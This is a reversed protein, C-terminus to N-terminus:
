PCKPASSDLNFAAIRIANDAVPEGNAAIVPLRQGTGADYLGVTVSYDQSRSLVSLDIPHIDQVRDGPQWQWFPMLGLLPPSDHQAALSGDPNLMHVFIHLDGPVSQSANWNLTVNLLNGCVSWKPDELALSGGFTAVVHTAAIKGPPNSSKLLGGVEILEISRPAYDAIYVHDAARIKPMLQDWNLPQGGSMGYYYPQPVALNTFKAAAVNLSRGTNAWVFESLTSYGPLFLAGEHGVPYWLQMPSIWAPLNVFLLQDNPNSQEAVQLVSELPAANLRHLDMRQRIFIFAPVLVMGAIAFVAAIRVRRLSRGDWIIEAAGAWLWAAGVSALYLVRPADILYNHSLFMMPPLLCIGYWGVGMIWRRMQGARIFIAALLSLGIAAVILVAIQDNVGWAMMVRGLPQLPFTLGQIAYVVNQFITEPSQFSLGSTNDHPRSQYWFYFIVSLAAYAGIWHWRKKPSLRTWEVLGILGALLLSGENSSFALWGFVLSAILWRPRDRRRFQDYTLMSLLVFLTAMPHTFSAPLTVVQYSFPFLAFILSALIAPWWRNRRDIIRRVVVMVLWTNIVHATVSLAHYLVVSDGGFFTEYVKWLFFQMPRYYPRGAATFFISTLTQNHLWVYHTMDDFFFPLRLSDGYALLIAIVTVIAAWGM